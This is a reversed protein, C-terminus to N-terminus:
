ACIHEEKLKNLLNEAFIRHGEETFHVGDFAMPIKWMGADAFGIGLREALKKYEAALQRSAEVMTQEEVWAGLAMPPPAILLIRSGQVALQELFREMRGCVTEVPNGQLLDNTGLMIILLDTSRPFVTERRPIERGNMGNNHIEWGTKAALIDVWRCAPDYRGGFCSRPDYGFTNSDGFCIVKM